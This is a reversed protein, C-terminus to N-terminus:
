NSTEIQPAKNEAVIGLRILEVIFDEAKKSSLRPLLPKLAVTLEEATARKLMNFPKGSDTVQKAAETLNSILVSFVVTGDDSTAADFM